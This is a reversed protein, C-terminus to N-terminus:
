LNYVSPICVRTRRILIKRLSGLQNEKSRITWQDASNSGIPYRRNPKSNRFQVNRHEALDRQNPSKRIDWLVVYLEALM